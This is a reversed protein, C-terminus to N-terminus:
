TRDMNRDVVAYVVFAILATLGAVVQIILRHFEVPVGSRRAYDAVASTTVAGFLSAAFAFKLLRLSALVLDNLSPPKSRKRM